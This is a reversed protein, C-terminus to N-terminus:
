TEMTSSLMRTTVPSATLVVRSPAVMNTIPVQALAMAAIARTLMALDLPRRLMAVMLPRTGSHAALRNNLTIGVSVTRTSSPLGALLFLHSGQHVATLRRHPVTISLRSLKAAM